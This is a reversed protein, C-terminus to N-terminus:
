QDLPQALLDRVWALSLADSFAAAAPFSLGAIASSTIVDDKSFKGILRYMPVGRDGAGLAYQEVVGAVPDVMWYESVRHDQYAEYKIGRDRGATSKSLIEIVLAPPPFVNTTRDWGSTQETRWFVIDPEFDNRGMAILAKEACVRGLAKLKVYTSILTFLNGSAVLHAERVPSHMIIQGNIFEAKVSPTLWKRFSKRDEAEYALQDAARQVILDANPRDMLRQYFEESYMVNELRDM